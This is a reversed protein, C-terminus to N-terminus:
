WTRSISREKGPRYLPSSRAEHSPPTVIVEAGKRRAAAMLDQLRYLEGESVLEDEPLEMRQLPPGFEIWEVFADHMFGARTTLTGKSWTLDRVSVSELAEIFPHGWFPLPDTLFDFSLHRLAPFAQALRAIEIQPMSVRTVRPCPAEPLLRPNLEEVTDLLPMSNFFEATRGKLEPHEIEALDLRQLTAWQPEKLSEAFDKPRRRLKASFLVGDRFESTDFLQALKGLSAREREKKLREIRALLARPSKGTLEAAAVQQQLDVLVEDKSIEDANM